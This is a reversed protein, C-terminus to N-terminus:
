RIKSKIQQCFNKKPYQLVYFILYKVIQCFKEVTGIKMDKGTASNNQKEGLKM